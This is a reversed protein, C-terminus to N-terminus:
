QLVENRYFRESNETYVFNYNNHTYIRTVQKDSIIQEIFHWGYEKIWVPKQKQMMEILENLNLPNNSENISEELFKIAMDNKVSACENVKILPCDTCGDDTVCCKLALIIDKKAFQKNITGM